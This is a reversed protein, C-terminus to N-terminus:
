DVIDLAICISLADKLAFTFWTYPKAHLPIHMSQAPSVFSFLLRIPQADRNVQASKADHSNVVVTFKGM